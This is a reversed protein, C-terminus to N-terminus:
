LRGFHPYTVRNQLSPEEAVSDTGACPVVYPAGLNASALTIDAFPGTLKHLNM